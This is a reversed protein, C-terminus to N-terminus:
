GMRTIALALLRSDRGAPDHDCRATLVRDRRSERDGTLRLLPMRRALRRGVCWRRVAGWPFCQWMSASSREASVAESFRAWRRRRSVRVRFDDDRLGGRGVACGARTEFCESWGPVAAFIGRIATAVRSSSSKRTGCTDVALKGRPSAVPHRRPSPMLAPHGRGEAILLAGIATAGPLFRSALPTRTSGTRRRIRSGATTCVVELEVPACAQCSGRWPLQTTGAGSWVRHAAGAPVIGLPADHM